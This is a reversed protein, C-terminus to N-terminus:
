LFALMNPPRTIGFIEDGNDWLWYGGAAAAACCCCLVLLVVVIIVIMRTNSKKPPQELSEEIPPIPTGFGQDM